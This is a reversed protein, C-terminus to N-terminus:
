QATYVTDYGTMIDDEDFEALAAIIESKARESTTLYSWQSDAKNIAEQETNCATIYQDTLEALGGVTSYRNDIVVWKKSMKNEVKRLDIYPEESDIVWNRGIKRATKYGGRLCKHRITSIERNHIRAYESISILM